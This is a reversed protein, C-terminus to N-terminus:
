TDKLYQIATNLADMGASQLTPEWRPEDGTPSVFEENTGFPTTRANWAFSIQHNSDSKANALVAGATAVVRHRLTVADEPPAYKLYRLLVGKGTAYDATYNTKFEGELTAEHLVDSRDYLLFSGKLLSTAMASASKPFKPDRRKISDVESFEQAEALMTWLGGLLLGQDGTWAQGSQFKPNGPRNYSRYAEDVGAPCAFAPRELAVQCEDPTEVSLFLGEQDTKDTTPYKDWWDRFWLYQSAAAELYKKDKTMQFLQTSLIFALGNTVTNQIGPVDQGPELYPPHNWCGGEVPGEKKEPDKKKLQDNLNKSYGYIADWCKTALDLCNARTVTVKPGRPEKFIEEFHRYIKGFAIGCWGYDDWWLKPSQRQGKNQEEYVDQFWDYSDQIMRQLDQRRTQMANDGKWAKLGEIIFDTCTDLTNATHWFDSRLFEPWSDNHLRDYVDLTDSKYSV